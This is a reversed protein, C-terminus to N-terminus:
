VEVVNALLSTIVTSIVDLAVGQKAPDGAVELPMVIVTFGIFVALTLM